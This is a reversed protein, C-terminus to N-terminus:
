PISIKKLFIGDATGWGEVEIRMGPRLLKRFEEDVFCISDHMPPLNELWVKPRCKRDSYSSADKVIFELTTTKGAILARLMPYAAMPVEYAIAFLFFPAVLKLVVLAFGSPVRRNGWSRSKEFLGFVWFLYNGYVFFLSAFVCSIIDYEIYYYESVLFRYGIVRSVFFPIIGFFLVIGCPLVIIRDIAKPRRYEINDRDENIV